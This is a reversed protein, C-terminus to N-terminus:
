ESLQKQAYEGVKHTRDPLNQDKNENGVLGRALAGPIPSYSGVALMTWIFIAALIMILPVAHKHLRKRNVAM